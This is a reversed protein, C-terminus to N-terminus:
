RRRKRHLLNRDIVCPPRSGRIEFPTTFLDTTEPVVAYKSWRAQLTRDFGWTHQPSHVPATVSEIWLAVQEDRVGVIKRCFYSQNRPGIEPFVFETCFLALVRRLRACGISQEPAKDLRWRIHGANSRRPSRQDRDVHRVALDQPFHREAGHLIEAVLLRGNGGAGETKTSGDDGRTAQDEGGSGEVMVQACEIGFVALFQPFTWQWIASM